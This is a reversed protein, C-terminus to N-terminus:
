RCEQETLTIAAEAVPTTNGGVEIGDAGMPGKINVHLMSRRGMKTGQESVFHTGDKAAVLGHRMM